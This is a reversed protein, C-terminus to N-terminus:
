YGHAHLKRLTLTGERHLGHIEKVGFFAGTSLIFVSVWYNCSQFSGAFFWMRRFFFFRRRWLAGCEFLQITIWSGVSNFCVEPDEQQGATGDM